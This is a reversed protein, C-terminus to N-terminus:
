LSDRFQRSISEYACAPTVFFLSASRADSSIRDLDDEAKDAVEDITDACLNALRTSKLNGWVQETPNPDPAYGPLPEIRLWDRQTAAWNLM